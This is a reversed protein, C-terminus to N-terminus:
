EVFSVIFLHEIVLARSRCSMEGHIASITALYSEIVPLILMRPARFYRRINPCLLGNVRLM